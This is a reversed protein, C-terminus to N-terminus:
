AADDMKADGEDAQAGIMALQALNAMTGLEARKRAVEAELQTILWAQDEISLNGAPLAAAQASLTALTTHLQAAQKSLELKHDPAHDAQGAPAPDAPSAALHAIRLVSPFLTAALAADLAQSPDGASAM